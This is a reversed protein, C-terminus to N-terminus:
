YKACFDPCNEFPSPEFLELLANPYERMLTSFKRVQNFLFRAKRPMNKVPNKLVDLVFPSEFSQKM